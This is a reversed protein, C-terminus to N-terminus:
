KAAHNIHIFSQDRHNEIEHLREQRLSLVFECILQKVKDDPLSVEVWVGLNEGLRESHASANLALSEPHNVIFFQMEVAISDECIISTRDQGDSIISLDGLLRQQIRISRRNQM